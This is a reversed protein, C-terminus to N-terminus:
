LSGGLVKQGTPGPSGGFPEVTIGFSQYTILPSPSNVRLMGYGSDEVSFVGGSTRKGDKILWLQYQQKSDLPLLGDVVLTGFDGDGSIVLMGSPGTGQPSALRVLHFDTPVATSSSTTPIRTQQLQMINLGALTVILLLGVLGVLPNLPRSLWAWWSPRVPQARIEQTVANQLIAGRLRLPPKRQPVTQPLHDVVAQYAHLEVQCSLCRELHSSVGEREDDPLIGLVYAPIFEIVHMKNM